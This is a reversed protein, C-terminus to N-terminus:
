KANGIQASHVLRKQRHQYARFTLAVICVVLLLCALYLCYAAASEAVEGRGYMAYTLTTITQNGTSQLMMPIDLRGSMMLGVLLWGSLISPLCLRATITLVSKTKSAGSIRAAEELETRIQVVSGEIARAAIPLTAVILALMMMWPTGFLERLGPTYLYMWLLSISLVIGPATAPVWTGIKFLLATKTGRYRHIVYALTFSLLASVAGGLVAIFLTATIAGQMRRNSAAEVYHALTWTEYGGFYSQFSGIVIQALPLVLAVAFFGLLIVNLSGRVASPLSLPAHQRTKGGVTTFDRTGLIRAQLVLLLAVVVVFVLSLATASAYDPSLDSDLYGYIFVSLPEIGVPRGLMAPIEFTELGAVFLLAGTASLAPILSPLTIQRFAKLRPVGCMVAADEVGPDLNRIPGILLLYALGTVKVATVLVLGPWGMINLYQTVESMGIAKLGQSIIGGESSGLMSWALVYFLNPVVALTVMM